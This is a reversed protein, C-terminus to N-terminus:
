KDVSFDDHKQYKLIADVCIDCLEKAFESNAGEAVVNCVHKVSDPIVVVWGKDFTIRVGEPSDKDAGDATKIKTMVEELEDINKMKVKSKAMSIEPLLSLLEGISTNEEAMFDILKIVSGVADFRFIFQESLYDEGRLTHEMIELPETSTRIVEAGCQEAIKEIARTATVPVYIKCNKYKKMVIMSCLAEYSDGEAIEGKDTVIKLKECKKDIIFGIDFGGQVVAASFKDEEGESVCPSYMSVSCGFDGAAGSILRRGWTAKCSVLIKLGCQKKLTSNILSKLYYLKYEFLYERDEIAKPDSRMVEGSEFLEELRNALKEDIDAGGKDILDIEAHEEGEEEYTNIAVGGSMSYFAVGRRTIPLPQEGFDKVKTGTGMIGSIVADRLMAGSPSGDNSVGVEGMDAVTGFCEGVRLCFEPTLADNVVGEIKRGEFLRDRKRGGWMVNESVVIGDEITKEPWIRVFSRITCNKGISCGNGIVAQEYLSSARGIKVDNGVICGRLAVDKSITCKAGVISRKVDAGFLVRSGKGIVSYAGIKAGKEIHAGEAIYCPSELLAGTEVVAGKEVFSQGCKEAAFFNARMYSPFDNLPESKEGVFSAYVSKGGRVLSPLLFDAMDGVNEDPIFRVSDKRLIFGGTGGKYNPLQEWLRKEEFRTIRGSKDTSIAGRRLDKTMLLTAYAGKEGHFRWAKEFDMDSYGVFSFYFFSEELIDCNNKIAACEGGEGSVFTIDFELRELLSKTEREMYGLIVVFSDVGCRKLRELLIEVASKGLIPLLAPNESSTLPRLRCGQGSANIVAQM